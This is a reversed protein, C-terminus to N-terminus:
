APAEWERDTAVLIVENVSEAAKGTIWDPGLERGAEDYVHKYISLVARMRACGVARDAYFHPQATVHLLPKYQKLVPLAATLVEPEAGQIIFKLYDMRPIQYCRMAWELTLGKVPIGHKPDNPLLSSRSTGFRGHHPSLMVPGRVSTIAKDSLVVTDAGFRDKNMRVNNALDNFAAPDPEFTYVKAGKSAAYLATTGVFAGVDVYVMGPKLFKDMIQFTRPRWVRRECEEWTVKGEGTNIARVKVGYLNFMRTPVWTTGTPLVVKTYGEPEARKDRDRMGEDSVIYGEGAKAYTGYEWSEVYATLVDNGGHFQVEPDPVPRMLEACRKAYEGRMLCPQLSMKYKGFRQLLHDGIRRQTIEHECFENAAPIDFQSLQLFAMRPRERMLALMADLDVPRLIEIDDESYFVFPTESAGWTRKLAANLSGREGPGPALFLCDEFHRKCVARVEEATGDGVPDINIVLRVGRPDTFICRRLSTLSREIVAPRLVAPMVLDIPERM